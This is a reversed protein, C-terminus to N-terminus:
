ETGTFMRELEDFWNTVMVVHDITDASNSGQFMVLYESGPAVDYDLSPFLDIFRTEFLTEPRKARFTDGATEVSAASMGLATRYFIQKQDSSWTPYTAREGGSSIQWEGRGSPFPRVYVEWSGSENSGYTIWRGDPSIRGGYEIFKTTLFLEPEEDGELAM